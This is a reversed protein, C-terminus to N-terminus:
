LASTWIDRQIQWQGGQEKWIIVYNGVDLVRQQRDLFRYEGVENLTGDLSDVESPTRQM